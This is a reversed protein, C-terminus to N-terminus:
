EDRSRGPTVTVVTASPLLEELAARWIEPQLTWFEIAGSSPGYILMPEWTYIFKFRKRDDM